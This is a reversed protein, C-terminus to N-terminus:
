ASAVIRCKRSTSRPKTRLITYELVMANLASEFLIFPQLSPGDIEKCRSGETTSPHTNEFVQTIIQEQYSDVVGAQRVVPSFIPKQTDVCCGLSMASGCACLSYLM